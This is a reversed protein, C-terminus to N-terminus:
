GRRYLSEFYAKLQEPSWQVTPTIRVSQLLVADRYYNVVAAESLPYRGKAAAANLLSAAAARALAKFPSDNVEGESMLVRLLAAPKASPSRVESPELLKCDDSWFQVGFVEVFATGNKIVPIRCASDAGKSATGDVSKNTDNKSDDKKSELEGRVYPGPWASSSSQWYSPPQGLMSCDARRDPHSVNGSMQGSVTCLYPIDAGLVPKSALTTMVVPAALGGRAFRRRRLDVAESKGPSAGEGASHM